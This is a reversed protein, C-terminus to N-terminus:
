RLDRVYTGNRSSPIMYVPGLGMQSTLRMMATTISTYRALCSARSISFNLVAAKRWSPTRTPIIQHLISVYCDALM